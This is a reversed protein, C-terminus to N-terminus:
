ATLPELIEMGDMLPMHSDTLVLDFYGKKLKELATAGNVGQCCECGETQLIKCPM